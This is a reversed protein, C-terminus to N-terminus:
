NRPGAALMQAATRICPECAVRESYTVTFLRTESASYDLNCLDCRSGPFERTMNAPRTSSFSGFQDDPPLKARIAELRELIPLDAEDTDPAASSGLFVSWVESDPKAWEVAQRLALSSGELDNKAAFTQSAESSLRVAEERAVPGGATALVGALELLAKTDHPAEVLRARLREVNATPDEDGPADEWTRDGRSADDMLIAVCGVCVVAEAGRHSPRAASLPAKCFDCVM